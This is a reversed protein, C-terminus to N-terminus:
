LYKVSHERRVNLNTDYIDIQMSNTFLLQHAKLSQKNPVIGEEPHLCQVITALASSLGGLQLLATQLRSPDAGEQM